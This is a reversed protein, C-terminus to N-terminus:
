NQFVEQLTLIRLTLYRLEVRDEGLCIRDGHLLDQQQVRRGNVYTGHTKSLDVVSYGEQGRLFKAHHRSVYPSPLIIDADSKRGVLVEDASLVYVQEDGAPTIWKVYGNDNDTQQSNCFLTVVAVELSAKVRM